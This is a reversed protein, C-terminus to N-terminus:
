EDQPGPKRRSSPNGSRRGPRRGIPWFRRWGRDTLPHKFLQRIVAPPLTAVEAHQRPEAEDERVARAAPERRAQEEDQYADYDDFREESEALGLYEMTKRLAGAM